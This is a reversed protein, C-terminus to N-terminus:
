QCVNARIGIISVYACRKRFFERSMLRRDVEVLLRTLSVMSRRLSKLRATLHPMLYSFFFHHVVESIEFRRSVAELLMGKDLPEEGEEHIDTMFLKRALNAFINGNCPEQIVLTGGPKLVRCIESFGPDLERPIHHLVARGLVGDFTGDKFPMILINGMLPNTGKAAMRLAELNLDISVVFSRTDAQYVASSFDGAGGGLDLVNMSKSKLVKLTKDKLGSWCAKNAESDVIWRHKRVALVIFDM